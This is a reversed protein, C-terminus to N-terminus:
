LIPIFKLVMNEFEHLHQFGLWFRWKQPTQFMESPVKHRRPMGSADRYFREAVRQPLASEHLERVLSIRSKNRNPFSTLTNKFLHM